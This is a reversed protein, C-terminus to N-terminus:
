KMWLKLNFFVGISNQCGELVPKGWLLFFIDDLSGDIHAVIIVLLIFDYGNLENGFHSGIQGMLFVLLKEDFLVGFKIVFGADSDFFLDDGFEFDHTFVYGWLKKVFLHDVVEVQLLAQLFDPSDSFGANLNDRM